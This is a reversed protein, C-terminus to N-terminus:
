QIRAEVALLVDQLHDEERRRDLATKQSVIQFICKWSLVNQNWIDISSLDKLMWRNIGRLTNVVEICDQDRWLSTNLLLINKNKPRIKIGCNITIKAKIPHHNSLTYPYVLVKNGESIPEFCCVDKNAYFRDLRSYIIKCGKQANCWSFWVGNSEQKLGELPDIVNLGNKMRLWYHRENGKSEM